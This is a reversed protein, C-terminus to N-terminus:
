LNEIMKEYAEKAQKEIEIADAHRDDWKEYEVANRALIEQWMERMEETFKV